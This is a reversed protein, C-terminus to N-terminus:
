VSFRELAAEIPFSYSIFCGDNPVIGGAFDLHHFSTYWREVWQELKENRRQTFAYGLSFIVDSHVVDVHVSGWPYEPGQTSTLSVGEKVLTHMESIMGDLEPYLSPIGFLIHGEFNGKEKVYARKHPAVRFQYMDKNRQWAAKRLCFVPINRRQQEQIDEEDGPFSLQYVGLWEGTSDTTYSASIYPEFMVTDDQFDASIISVRELKATNLQLFSLTELRKGKDNRSKLKANKGNATQEWPIEDLM